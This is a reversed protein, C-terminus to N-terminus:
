PAKPVAGHALAVFFLFLYLEALSGFELFSNPDDDKPPHLHPSFRETRRV